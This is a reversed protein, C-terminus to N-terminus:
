VIYKTKTQYEDVFPLQTLKFLHSNELICLVFSVTTKYSKSFIFNYCFINAQLFLQNQFDLRYSNLFFYNNTFFPLHQTKLKLSFLFLFKFFTPMSNELMRLLFRLFCANLFFILSYWFNEFIRYFILPYILKVIYCSFWFEKSHTRKQQIFRFNFTLFEM